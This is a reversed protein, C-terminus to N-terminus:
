RGKLYQWHCDKGVKPIITYIYHYIKIIETRESSLGGGKFSLKWLGKSLESITINM